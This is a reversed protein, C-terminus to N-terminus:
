MCTYIACIYVYIHAIHMIKYQQYKIIFSGLSPLSILMYWTGSSCSTTPIIHFSIGQTCMHQQLYMYVSSTRKDPHSLDSLVWSTQDTIGTIMIGHKRLQCLWETKVSVASSCTLSISEAVCFVNTVITDPM